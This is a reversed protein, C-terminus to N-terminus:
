TAPRALLGALLTALLERLADGFELRLAGLTCDAEYAAQMAASPQTAVWMSGVVLVTAKAFRQGAVDNLEPVAGRVLHGLADLNM